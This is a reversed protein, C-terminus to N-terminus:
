VALCWVSRRPRAGANRISLDLLLAVVGESALRGRGSRSEV